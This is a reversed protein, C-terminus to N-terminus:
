SYKCRFLVFYSCKYGFWSYRCQELECQLIEYIRLLEAPPSVTMHYFAFCVMSNNRFLCAHSCFVLLLSILHRMSRYM